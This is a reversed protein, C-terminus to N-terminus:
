DALERDLQRAKDPQGCGDLSSAADKMHQDVDEGARHAEILFDVDDLMRGYQRTTAGQEFEALCFSSIRLAANGAELERASVVDSGGDGGCGALAVAALIAIAPAKRVLGGDM